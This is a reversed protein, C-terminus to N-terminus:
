KAARMCCFTPYSLVHQVLVCKACAHRERVVLISDTQNPSTCFAPRASAVAPWSCCYLPTACFPQRATPKCQAYAQLQLGLAADQSPCSICMICLILIYLPKCGNVILNALTILFDCHGARCSACPSLLSCIYVQVAFHFQWADPMGRSSLTVRLVICPTHLKSATHSM